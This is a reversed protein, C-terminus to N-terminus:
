GRVHPGKRIKGMQQHGELRFPHHLKDALTHAGKSKAGKHRAGLRCPHDLWYACM